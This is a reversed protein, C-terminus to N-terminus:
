PVRCTDLFPIGVKEDEMEKRVKRIREESVRDLDDQGLRFKDDERKRKEGKRDPTEVPSSASTSTEAKANSSKEASSSKPALGAQTLEFDRISREQAELDMRTRDELADREEQEKAKEIRKIEKKQALINSL